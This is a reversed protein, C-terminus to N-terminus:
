STKDHSRRFDSWKPQFHLEIQNSRRRTSLYGLSVRKGLIKEVTNTHVCFTWKGTSKNEQIRLRPERPNKRGCYHRLARTFINLKNNIKGQKMPTLAKNEERNEQNSDGSSLRPRKVIRSMKEIKDLFYFINIGEYKYRKIKRKKSRCINTERSQRNCM